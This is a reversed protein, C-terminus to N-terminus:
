TQESKGAFMTSVLSFDNMSFFLSNLLDSWIPRAILPPLSETHAAYM